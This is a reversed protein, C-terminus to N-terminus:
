DELGLLYDTSVGLEQSLRILVDFKIATADGVVLRRMSQYQSDSSAKPFVKKGLERTKIPRGMAQRLGMAERIRLRM